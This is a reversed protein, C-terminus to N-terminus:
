NGVYFIDITIIYFYYEVQDTCFYIVIVLLQQVRQLQQSIDFSM